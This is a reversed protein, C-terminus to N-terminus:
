IKFLPVILICILLLQEYKALLHMSNNNRHLVSQQFIAEVDIKIKQKLTPSQYSSGIYNRKIQSEQQKISQSTHM